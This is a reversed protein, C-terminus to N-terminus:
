YPLLLSLFLLAGLMMYAKKGRGAATFAMVLLLLSQLSEISPDDTDLETRARLAYEESSRVAAHYGNPHPTYRHRNTGTICPGPPESNQGGQASQM